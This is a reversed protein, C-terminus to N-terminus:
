APAGRWNWGARRAVLWGAFLLFAGHVWWLGLVPPIRGDGLAVQGLVLLNSYALYVLIGLVIKGYRGSRPRTHALPVALLALVLVTIPASIRWHLEAWDEQDGSAILSSTTALKRKSSVYDLAPPPQVRMGFREFHMVEFDARGPTGVYRWGDSLTIHREGTRTDLRQSGSRATVVSAYDPDDVRVFIEGLSGADSSMDKTYFTARGGGIEKFAGPEFPAFQVLRRSDKVLQEVVRGSWPGIQFSLAASFAALALALGIFPRYLGGLGVGCATMATIEQDKYLRGLALMVGLLLSIPILILLYQLVSLGVVKLLLERPLEGAAAASLYRVFRTSLMIALLVVTVAFWAAAGEKLLYRNLVGGGM